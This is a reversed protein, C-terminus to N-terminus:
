EAGDPAGCRPESFDARYSAISRLALHGDKSPPICATSSDALSSASVRVWSDASNNQARYQVKSSDFTLAVQQCATGECGPAPALRRAAVSTASCAALLCLLAVSRAHGGIRDINM